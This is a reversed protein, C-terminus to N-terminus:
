LTASVADLTSNEMVANASGIIEDMESAHDLFSQSSRSFQTLIATFNGSIKPSGKVIIM